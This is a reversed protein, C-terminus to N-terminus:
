FFAAGTNNIFPLYDETSVFCCAVHIMQLWEIELDVYPIVKKRGDNIWFMGSLWLQYVTAFFCPLLKVFKSLLSYVTTDLQIGKKIIKKETFFFPWFWWFFPNLVVLKTLDQLPGGQAESQGMAIEHRGSGALGPLPTSRKPTPRWTSWFFGYAMSRNLWSKSTNKIKFFRDVEVQNKCSQCVDFTKEFFCTDVCLLCHGHHRIHEKALFGSCFWMLPWGKTAHNQLRM